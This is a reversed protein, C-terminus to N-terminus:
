RALRMARGVESGPFVQPARLSDRVTSAQLTSSEPERVILLLATLGAVYIVYSIAQHIKTHM